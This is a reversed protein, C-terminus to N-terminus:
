QANSPRCRAMASVAMADGLTVLAPVHNPDLLFVKRLLDTGDAMRGSSFAIVAALHLAPIYDPHLSLIDACLVGAFEPRGDAYYGAAERLTLEVAAVGM